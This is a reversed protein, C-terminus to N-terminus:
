CELFQQVMKISSLVLRMLSLEYLRSSRQRWFGTVYFLYSIWVKSAILCGLQALVLVRPMGICTELMMKMIQAWQTVDGTVITESISAVYM